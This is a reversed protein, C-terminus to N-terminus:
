IGFTSLFAPLFSQAYYHKPEKKPPKLYLTVGLLILFLGGAFRLKTLWEIIQDAISTLGIGAISGYITDATAVGFGSALGLWLGSHLTRRICMISAPGIPASVAMGVIIGKLLFLFDKIIPDPLLAM